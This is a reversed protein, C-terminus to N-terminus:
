KERWAPSDGVKEHELEEEYQQNAILGSFPTGEPLGHVKNRIELACVPCCKISNIRIDNMFLVHIYLRPKNCVECTKM